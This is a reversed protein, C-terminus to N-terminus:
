SAKALLHEARTLDRPLTIKFNDEDGDVVRVTLGAERAVAVDDTADTTLNQHAKFIADYRFAQPTQARWLGDRPVPATAHPGDTQWLADVVPLAAFAGDATDLAAIVRDILDISCFPRAADHILVNTPTDLAELGLHVSASRSAGGHVSRFLM